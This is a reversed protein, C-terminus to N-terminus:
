AELRCDRCIAVNAKLDPVPIFTELEPLQNAVLCQVRARTVEISLLNRQEVLFRMGNVDPPESFADYCWEAEQEREWNTYLDGLQGTIEYWEFADRLDYYIREADQFYEDGNDSTESDRTAIGMRCSVEAFRETIERDDAICSFARATVNYEAELGFQSFYTIARIWLAQKKPLDALVKLFERANHDNLTMASREATNGAKKFPVVVRATDSM